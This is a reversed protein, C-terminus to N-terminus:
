SKWPEGLIKKPFKMTKITPFMKKEVTPVQESPESAFMKSFQNRLVQTKEADRNTSEVM